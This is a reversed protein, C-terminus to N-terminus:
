SGASAVARAVGNGREASSYRQMLRGCFREATDRVYAPDLTALVGHKRPAVFLRSRETRLTMAPIGAWEAIGPLSASLEETRVVLLREAPVADLVRENHSAWLQLYCALSPFGRAVLPADHKTPPFDDVRLRVHDLMTFPAGPKPPANINHDLWSDCWTFVDRITLLFKKDPCARLFPEILIGALSSSEMELWLLRDRRELVREAAAHDIGGRLYRIALQIRRYADPHHASRYDEFIGAMSHTGTKSLGCCCIDLRRPPLFPRRALNVVDRGTSVLYELQHRV